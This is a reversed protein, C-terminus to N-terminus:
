QPIPACDDTVPVGVQRRGKMKVSMRNKIKVTCTVKDGDTRGVFTHGSSHRAEIHGGRNTGYVHYVDVQGSRLRLNFVGRVRGDPKTCMTARFTSTYVSGTWLETKEDPAAGTTRSAASGKAPKAM